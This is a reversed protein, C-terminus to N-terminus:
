LLQKIMYVSTTKEQQWQFATLAVSAASNNCGPSNESSSANLCCCVYRYEINQNTFVAQEHRM